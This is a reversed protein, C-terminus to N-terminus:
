AAQRYADPGTPYRTEGGTWGTPWATGSVTVEGTVEAQMQANTMRYTPSGGGVDPARPYVTNEIVFNRGWNNIRLRPTQGSGPTQDRTVCNRITFGDCGEVFPAIDWCTAVFIEEWLINANLHRAGGTAMDTDTPDLERTAEGGWYGDGHYIAGGAGYSRGFM